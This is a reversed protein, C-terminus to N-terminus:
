ADTYFLSFSKVNSELFEELIRLLAFHNIKLQSVPLTSISVITPVIVTLNEIFFLKNKSNNRIWEWLICVFLVAKYRSYRNFAVFDMANSSHYVSEIGVILLHKCCGASM